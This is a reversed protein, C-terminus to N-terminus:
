NRCLYKQHSTEIRFCGACPCEGSKVQDSIDVNVGYWGTVAGIQDVTPIIRTLFPSYRGNAAKLPFVMEFPQGAAISAQWRTLVKPLEIPDHVSQWGWGEMQEPTTGTYEYWRRNYWVIYGDSNAMWCLTPIDNAFERFKADDINM